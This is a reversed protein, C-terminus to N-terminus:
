KRLNDIIEYLPDLSSAGFKISRDPSWGEVENPNSETDKFPMELTMALCKFEEELANSCISMDAKGKEDVEYGFVNSFDPFTKVWHEKFRDLLSQLHENHAPVGESGAIFNFPQNEDGHVDLSFDMGVARMKELVYYVEPSNERSAKDWERNLNVGKANTRLHGRYSGDPCMNPVIYFVSGKLLERATPDNEDLLRNLLGEVFWEAMTEGPHQRATIWIKNKAEENGVILLDLDRGDLTEGLVEVKVLPSGQANSILDAHRELTYPAFYSYYVTDYLPTHKIILEKGDYETPVRFYTVRDYTAVAEYDKWGDPYASESANTIKMICEKDRAGTLRYHFWQYFHSDTDKRIALQINDFSTAELVEINGSDFNSSIKM